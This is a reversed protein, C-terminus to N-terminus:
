PLFLQNLAFKAPLSRSRQSLTVSRETFNYEAVWSNEM